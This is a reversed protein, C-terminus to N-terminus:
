FMKKRSFYVLIKRKINGLFMKIDTVPFKQRHGDFFSVNRLPNLFPCAYCALNITM